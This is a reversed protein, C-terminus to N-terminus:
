ISTTAFAFYRIQSRLGPGKPGPNVRIEIAKGGPRILLGEIMPPVAGLTKARIRLGSPLPEAHQGDTELVAPIYPLFTGASERQGTDITIVLEAAERAASAKWTPPMPMPLRERATKIDQAAASPQGAGTALTLTAHATEKVCIDKCVQYDVSAEIPLTTGASKGAYKLPVLLMANNQYGYTTDGPASFIEPAPWQLEGATLEPPTAWKVGPAGGSDGPNRWYIHWGPDLTFRVGITADGGPPVATLDAVLDVKAHPVRASRAAPQVALVSVLLAACIWHPARSQKRM